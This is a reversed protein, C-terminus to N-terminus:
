SEDRKEALLTELLKKNAKVTPYNGTTVVKFGLDSCIEKIQFGKLKLDYHHKLIGKLDSISVDKEIPVRGAETLMEAKLASLIAEEPEFDQSAMMAQIDKEIQKESFELWERDGISTAIAQLSLWNDRIRQSSTLTLSANEAMKLINEEDIDTVEYNGPKYKTTIIIARSQTAVDAFPTRRAIITAGFINADVKRWGNSDKNPLKYSIKSADRAYRRVLYDEYVKDGEDILATVTGDLEDRLTSQSEAGITKPQKVMKRLQNILKTKGTGIVGILALIPMTDIKDPLYHTAVAYYLCTKAQYLSIGSAGLLASIYPETYGVIETEVSNKGDLRFSNLNLPIFLKQNSAAERINSM